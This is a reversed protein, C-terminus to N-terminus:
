IETKWMNSFESIDSDNKVSAWNMNHIPQLSYMSASTRTVEETDHIEKDSIAIKWM